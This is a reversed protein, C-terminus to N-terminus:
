AAIPTQYLGRCHKQWRYSDFDLPAGSGDPEPLRGDLGAHTRRGNYYHRFDILKAELDAATWFLMRALYERRITGILREIFPHSLPVYPVTKVETVGLVRLNAQWQHFRYLPDHDSSLYRPLGGAVDLKPLRRYIPFVSNLTELTMTRAIVFELNRGQGNGAAFISCLDLV